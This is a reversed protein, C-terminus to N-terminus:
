HSRLLHILFAVTKSVSHPWLSFIITILVLPDTRELGGKLGSSFTLLVLLKSIPLDMWQTQKGWTGDSVHVCVVPVPACLSHPRLGYFHCKKLVVLIFRQQRCPKPCSLPIIQAATSHMHTVKSCKVSATQARILLIQPEATLKHTTTFCKM